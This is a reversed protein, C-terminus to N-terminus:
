GDILRKGVTVAAAADPACGDAGVNRWLAAHRQFVYGGVLVKVASCRANARLRAIQKEATDLHYTMTVGLAVLDPRERCVLDVLAAAPTNAGLYISDWGELEFFDAVMRAGIEHLEDGVCAAVVKRGVRPTALIQPYFRGMLAQTSATCFHEEAVSIENNQWLRGIERQVPQFVDLYLERISVGGRVADDIVEIASRRESRLLAALYARAMPARPSADLFSPVEEIGANLAADVSAAAGPEGSVEDRLLELNARLDYWPIGRKELLQRAWQTYAV